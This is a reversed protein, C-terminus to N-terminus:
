DIQRELYDLRRDIVDHLRTHERWDDTAKQGTYRDRTSENLQDYLRKIDHKVQVFEEGHQAAVSLAIASQDYCQEIAAIQLTPSFASFGGAGVTVASSVILVLVTPTIVIEGNDAKNGM